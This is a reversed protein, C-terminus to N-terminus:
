NSAPILRRSLISDAALGASRVGHDNAGTAAVAEAVSDFVPV